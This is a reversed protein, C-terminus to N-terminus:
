ERIKCILSTERRDIAENYEAVIDAAKSVLYANSVVVIINLLVMFGIILKIKGLDSKM